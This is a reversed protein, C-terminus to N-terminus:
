LLNHEKGEACAEAYELAANFDIETLSKGQYEIPLSGREMMMLLKSVKATQYIDIPLRSNSFIKNWVDLSIFYVEIQGFKGLWFNIYFKLLM